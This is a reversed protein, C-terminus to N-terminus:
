EDCWGYHLVLDSIFEEVPTNCGRNHDLISKFTKLKEFDTINMDHFVRFFEQLAGLQRESEAFRQQRVTLQPETQIPQAETQAAPKQKTQPMPLDGKTTGHQNRKLM